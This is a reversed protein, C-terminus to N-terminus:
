HVTCYHQLGRYRRPLPVRPLIRPTGNPSVVGGDRCVFCGTFCQPLPQGGADRRANAAIEDSEGCFTSGRKGNLATEARLSNLKHVLM